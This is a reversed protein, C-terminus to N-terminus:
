HRLIVKGQSGAAVAVHAAGIQALPFAQAIPIVLDGRAATDLVAALTAADTRHRIQQITVGHDAPTSVPAPVISVVRGGPRVHAVLHKAVAAVTSIARDFGAREPPRTIDIAEGAVDRAEALREARVGAVPRAGIQRLYQIAVRGVSGLGGSVLVREGAQVQLAEVAQRGTLGAKVLAAGQEFGMHAPLRVASSAPVVGYEANAGRGNPAFDAAVRDGLAFGSVGEGLAAITGAADGGLVVPLVLPIIPAMLGQRLILDFPNVASVEIQILVEGPAPAPTPVDALTFQGVDGYAMLLAAKM